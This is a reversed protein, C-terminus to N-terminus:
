TRHEISVLGRSLTDGLRDCDKKREAVRSYSTVKILLMLEREWMRSLNLLKNRSHWLKIVGRQGMEIHACSVCVGEKERERECACKSELAKQIWNWLSCSINKGYDGAVNAWIQIQFSRSVQLRRGGWCICAYAFSHAFLLGFAINGHSLTAPQRLFLNHSHFRTSDSKKWGLNTFDVWNISPDISILVCSVIEVTSCVKDILNYTIPNLSAYM